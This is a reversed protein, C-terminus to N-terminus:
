VVVFSNGNGPAETFAETTIHYKGSTLECATVLKAQGALVGNIFVVWRDKASVPTITEFETSTLAFNTNDVACIAQTGLTTGMNVAATSDSNVSAINANVNSGDFTILEARYELENLKGDVSGVDPAGPSPALKMADRVDQPYMSSIAGVNANITELQDDISGSDAAGGSPALKMADRVDQPLLEAVSTITGATINTPSAIAEPLLVGIGEATIAESAFNSVNAKGISFKAVVAGVVSISDVTGTTIVVSFDTDTAYFADSTEIAVHHMGTLGDYNVSLAVGTTTQTTSDKYVSLVPTGALTIPTGDAKHTNFDFSLTSGVARDGLNIM